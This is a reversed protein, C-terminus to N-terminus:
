TPPTCGFFVKKQSFGSFRDAGIANHAMTMGSLDFQQCAPGGTTRDLQLERGVQHRHHASQEGGHIAPEAIWTQRYHGGEPHPSLGLTAIIEEATM